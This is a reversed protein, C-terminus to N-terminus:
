CRDAPQQRCRFFHAAHQRGAQKWTCIHWVSLRDAPCDDGGSEAVGMDLALKMDNFQLREIGKLTDNGYIGGSVIFGSSTKTITHVSLPDDYVVTDIGAIGDITDNGIQSNILDNGTTGTIVPNPLTTFNYSTTGAYANGALDQITGAAFDVKYGTSYALDATPNITLTSGTFSLNASTAANFTEIVTGAADLIVINGAGKQISESFTLIINRGIAVGTAEDAPSFITVTPPSTDAVVTTFNYTSTGAYANGSLDMISGAAFEVTYGTGSSLDATPNISLTSGSISLNSSTAADYTAVTTGNTTKLVINGSGKQIAENFTVIINSSISVGNAEDAPSFMTVTPSMIDTPTKPVTDIDEYISLYVFKHSSASGQDWSANVYYTGTYPAVFSNILDSGYATGNDVAIFRGQNDHISLLFPDFYSSSYVLYTAGETFNVKFLDRLAAYDGSEYYLAQNDYIGLATNTPVYTSFSLTKAASMQAATPMFQSLYDLTTYTGM